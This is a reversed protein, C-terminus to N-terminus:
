AIVAGAVALALAVGGLDVAARVLRHKVHAIRALEALTAAPGDQNGFIDIIVQDGDMEAWRCWGVRGLRPRLAALALSTATVFMLAAGLAADHALGHGHSQALSFVAAAGTVAVLVGCKADARGIEARVVEAERALREEGASGATIEDAARM